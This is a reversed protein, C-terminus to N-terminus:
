HILCSLTSSVATHYPLHGFSLRPARVQPRIRRRKCRQLRFSKRSCDDRKCALGTSMGFHLWLSTSWRSQWGSLSGALSQILSSCWIWCASKSGTHPCVALSTGLSDAARWEQHSCWQLSGRDPMNAGPNRRKPLKSGRLSSYRVRPCLSQFKTTTSNGTARLSM